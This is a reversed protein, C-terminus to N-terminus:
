SESSGSCPASTQDRTWSNLDRCSCPEVLFFLFSFFLFVVEEPELPDYDRWASFLCANWHRAICGPIGCVCVCFKCVYHNGTPHTEVWSGLSWYTPKYIENVCFSSLLLIGTLPRARRSGEWPRLLVVQGASFPLALEATTSLAAAQARCAQPSPCLTKRQQCVPWRRCMRVPFWGTLNSWKTQNPFLYFLTSMRRVTPTLQATSLSNIRHILREM